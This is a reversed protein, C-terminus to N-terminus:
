DDCRDSHELTQTLPVCLNEALNQGIFEVQAKRKKGLTM